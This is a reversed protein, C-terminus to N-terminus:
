PSSGAERPVRPPPTAKCHTFHLECTKIDPPLLSDSKSGHFSTSSNPRTLKIGPPELKQMPDLDCYYALLHAVTVRLRAPAHRAAVVSLAAVSLEEWDGFNLAPQASRDHHGWRVRQEASGRRLRCGDPFSSLVCRSSCDDPFPLLSRDCPSSCDDQSPPVHPSSYYDDPFLRVRPSSCDDPFPPHSLVAPCRPWHWHWPQRRFSHWLHHPLPIQRHSRGRTACAVPSAPIASPRLIPM